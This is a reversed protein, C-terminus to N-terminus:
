RCLILPTYSVLSMFEPLPVFIVVFILTPYRFVRCKKHPIRLKKTHHLDTARKARFRQINFLTSILCLRIVYCLPMIATCVRLAPGRTGGFPLVWWLAGFSACHTHSDRADRRFANGVVICRFLCLGYPPAERGASLCCGGCHMLRPVFRLAPGQTGGFHVGWWLADFSTCDTPRPRADRRSAIGM